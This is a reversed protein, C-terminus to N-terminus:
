SHGGGFMVEADQIGVVQFRSAAQLTVSIDHFVQTEELCIGGAQHTTGMITAGHDPVQAGGGSRAAEFHAAAFDVATAHTLVVRQQCARGGILHVEEVHCMALLQSDELLTMGIHHVVYAEMGVSLQERTGLVVQHHDKVGLFGPFVFGHNSNNGVVFTNPGEAQHAWIAVGQAAAGGRLVNPNPLQTLVKPRQLRLEGIEPAM